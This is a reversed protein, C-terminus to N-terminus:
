KILDLERDRNELEYAFSLEISNKDVRHFDAIIGVFETGNNERHQELGRSIRIHAQKM